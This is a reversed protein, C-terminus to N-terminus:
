AGLLNFYVNVPGLRLLEPQCTEWRRWVLGKNCFAIIFFQMRKKLLLVLFCYEWPSFCSCIQSVPIRLPGWTCLSSPWATSGWWTHSRNAFMGAGLDRVALWRRLTRAWREQRNWRGCELCPARETQESLQGMETSNRVDSALSEGTCPWSTGWIRTLYAKSLWSRCHQQGHTWAALDVICILCPLELCSCVFCPPCFHSLSVLVWSQIVGLLLSNISLLWGFCPFHVTNLKESFSFSCQSLNM